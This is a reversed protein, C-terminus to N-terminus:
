PAKHLLVGCTFNPSFFPLKQLNYFLAPAAFSENQQAKKM